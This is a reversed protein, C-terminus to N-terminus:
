ADRQMEELLGRGQADYWARIRRDCDDCVVARMEEPVPGFRAEMEAVAEADSWGKQFTEGCVACRYTDPEPM